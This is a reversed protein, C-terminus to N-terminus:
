EKGMGRPEREFRLVEAGVVCSAITQDATSTVVFVLYRSGVDGGIGLPLSMWFLGGAPIAWAMQPIGDVDYPSRQILPVGAGHAEATAEGSRGLSAAFRGHDLATGTIAVSVRRIYDGEAFPGLMGYELCDAFWYVATNWCRGPVIGSM